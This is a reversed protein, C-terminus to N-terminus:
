LKHRLKCCKSISHINYKEHIVVLWLCKYNQTDSTLMPVRTGATLSRKSEQAVTIGSHVTFSPLTPMDQHYYVYVIREKSHLRAHQPGLYEAAEELTCQVAWKSCCQNIYEAIKQAVNWLLVTKDLKQRHQKHWRTSITTASINGEPHRKSRQKILATQLRHIIILPFSLM